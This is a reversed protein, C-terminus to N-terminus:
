QELKRGSLDYRAVGKAGVVVLTDVGANVGDMLGNRGSTQIVDVSKGDDKSFLMVGDVGFYVIQAGGVNVMNNISANSNTETESWTEGGDTSRFLHGRLGMVQVSGSNTVGVNFFSGEYPSELRRWSEGFDESVAIFGLEGAMYLRNNRGDFEISYFHPLGFDPDGLAEQDVVEWSNGGDTTKLYLGYAGVAVGLGGDRFWVDLLAPYYLDDKNQYQLSWTEGGDVTKLIVQQHGVAFGTMDDIFVVSTLTARTPTVVQRWSVGNDESILVHGREGVAVFKQASLAAVDLLLSQDSKEAIVSEDAFSGMSVILLLASLFKLRKTM